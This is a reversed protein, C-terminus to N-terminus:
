EAAALDAGVSELTFELMTVPMDTRATGYVRTKGPKLYLLEEGAGDVLRAAAVPGSEDAWRLELVGVLTQECDSVIVADVYTEGEQEYVFVDELALCQWYDVPATPAAPVPTPTSIPEPTYEPEPPPTPPLTIDPHIRGTSRACGGALLLVCAWLLLAGRVPRDGGQRRGRKRM